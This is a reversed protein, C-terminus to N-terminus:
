IRDSVTVTVKTQGDPSTASVQKQAHAITGTLLLVALSLFKKMYDTKTLSFTQKRPLM